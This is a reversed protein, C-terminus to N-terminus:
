NDSDSENGKRYAKELNEMLEEVNPIGRLYERLLGDLHYKWLAEWDGDYDKLKLFYSAGIHYDM